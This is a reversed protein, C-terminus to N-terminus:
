DIKVVKEGQLFNNKIAKTCNKYIKIDKVFLIEINNEKIYDKNRDEFVSM